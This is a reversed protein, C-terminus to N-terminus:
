TIIQKIINYKEKQTSEFENVNTNIIQYSTILTSNYEENIDIVLINM